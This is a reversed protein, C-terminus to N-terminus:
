GSSDTPQPNEREGRGTAVVPVILVKNGGQDLATFQYRKGLDQLMQIGTMGEYAISVNFDPMGPAIELALGTQMGIAELVTMLSAGEIRVAHPRQHTRLAEAAVPDPELVPPVVGIPESPAAFPQPETTTGPGTAAELGQQLEPTARATLWSGTGLYAGFALALLVAGSLAVVLPRQWVLRQPSPARFRPIPPSNEKAGRLGNVMAVRKALELRLEPFRGEFEEVAQMDRQEALMWM